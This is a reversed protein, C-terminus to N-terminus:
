TGAGAAVSELYSGEQCPVDSVILGGQIKANKMQGNRGSIM